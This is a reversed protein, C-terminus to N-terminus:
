GFYFAPSSVHAAPPGAPRALASWQRIAGIDYAPPPKKGSRFGRDLVSQRNPVLEGACRERGQGSVGTVFGADAAAVSDAGLGDSKESEPVGRGPDPPLRDRRGRRSRAGRRARQAGLVLQDLRHRVRARRFPVAGMGGPEELLEQEALMARAVLGEVGVVGIQEIGIVDAGARAVGAM